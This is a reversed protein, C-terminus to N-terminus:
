GHGDRQLGISQLQWAERDMPNELCSVPTPQWTRRWHIKRVWPDLQLKKGRRCQCASEQGSTGGPFGETTMLSICIDFSQKSVAKFQNTGLICTSITSEGFTLGDLVISFDQIILTVRM